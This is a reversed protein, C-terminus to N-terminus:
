HTARQFRTNETNRVKYAVIEGGERYAEERDRVNKCEALLTARREPLWIGFDPHGDLRPNRLREIVSGVLSKIKKEM